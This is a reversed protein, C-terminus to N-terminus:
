ERTPFVAIMEIAPEPKDGEPPQGYYVIGPGAAHAFAPAGSSLAHLAYGGDLSVAGTAATIIGDGLGVGTSTRGQYFDGRVAVSHLTLAACAPAAAVLGALDQSLDPLSRQQAARHCEDQEGTLFLLALDGDAYVLEFGYFDSALVSVRGPGLRALTGTLTTSGIRLDGLGKGPELTASQYPALAAPTSSGCATLAPLLLVALILDRGLNTM